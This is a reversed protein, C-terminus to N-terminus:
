VIQNCFGTNCVLSLQTVSTVLLELNAVVDEMLLAYNTTQGKLIVIVHNVITKQEKLQMELTAKQVNKM